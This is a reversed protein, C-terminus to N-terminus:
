LCFEGQSVPCFDLWGSELPILKITTITDENVNKVQKMWQYLEVKNELTVQAKGKLLFLHGSYHKLCSQLGSEMSQLCFWNGTEQVNNQWLQKKGWELSSEARLFANLYNQEDVMMLMANEQQYHLARLMMLSLALLMIISVLLINGRQKGTVKEEM